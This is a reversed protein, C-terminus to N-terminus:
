KSSPKEEYEKLLEVSYSVVRQIAYIVDKKREEDVSKLEELFENVNSYLDQLKQENVFSTISDDKFTTYIHTIFEAVKYSKARIVGKYYFVFDEFYKKEAFKLNNDKLFDNRWCIDWVNEYKWERVRKSFTSNEVNPIWEGELRGISKFGLYIIDPSDMGILDNLRLLVDDTALYDDADLFIIYEGCAINMAVNRAGGARLSENNKIVKIDKEKKLVEYTNDKSLDDVAIIEYDKFKQKKVSEIARVVEKEANYCPIIISFRTHKM